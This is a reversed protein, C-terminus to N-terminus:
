SIYARRGSFDSYSIRTNTNGLLLNIINSICANIRLNKSQQHNLVDTSVGTKKFENPCIDYQGKAEKCRVILGIQRGYESEDETLIKTRKTLRSVTEGDYFNINTDQMLDELLRLFQRLHTAESIKQENKYAKFCKV